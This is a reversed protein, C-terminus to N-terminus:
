DIIIYNMIPKMNILAFFKAQATNDQVPIDVHGTVHSAGASLSLTKVNTGMLRGSDSYLGVILRVDFDENETKNELSIHASINEGSEPLDTILKGDASFYAYNIETAHYSGLDVDIADWEESNTLYFHLIGNDIYLYDSRKSNLTRHGTGDTKILSLFGGNNYNSFYLTNDMVQIFMPRTNTKLVVPTGGNVSIKSLGANERDYYYFFDDTRAAQEAKHIYAYKNSTASYQAYLEEDWSHKDLCVIEGPQTPISPNKFYESSCNFYYYNIRGKRDPVPDAWTVDTHYWEGDIQVVNWAHSMERSTIMTCPIGMKGLLLSFALSYGECVAEGQVLAGYASHSLAGTEKYTITNVLYDHAALEKQLTTMSPTIYKQMFTNVTADIEATMDDIEDPAYLYNFNLSLINSATHSIRYSADIYFLYPNSNHVTQFAKQVTAVSEATPPLNFSSLDASKQLSEAASLIVDEMTPATAASVSMGSLILLLLTTTLIVSCLKKM